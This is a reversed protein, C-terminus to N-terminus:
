NLIKLEARGLERPGRLCMRTKYVVRRGEIEAM